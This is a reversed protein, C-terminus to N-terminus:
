FHFDLRSVVERPTPQGFRPNALLLREEPPYLLVARQTWAVAEHELLLVQDPSVISPLHKVYVSSEEIGMTRRRLPERPVFRLKDLERWLHGQTSDIRLPVDEGYARFVIRARATINPHTADAQIAQACAKFTQM